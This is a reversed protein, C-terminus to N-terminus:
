SEDDQISAFVFGCIAKPYFYTSKQPLVHGSYCVEKIRAISVGNTILALDAEKRSVKLLCSAFSREYSIQDAYRQAEAPIGLVKEIFFHHLVVIDLQKLDKSLTTDFHDYVEPKLQIHYSEADMMLGFSWPKGAIIEPLHHADQLPRVTFYRSTQAIIVKSSFGPLKGVLRHTPLVKINESETNTLYMLHYNYWEDGSHRPNQRIRKRRYVLSSEYRHHGDALIVKKDKMLSIFESVQQPENIIALVDRVGQYDEAQYVPQQMAADMWPELEHHADTYLGHTPSANLHTADLLAVRESVSGPITNEHPLVVKEEWFSAEIMCIFGKRCFEQEEGSLRFYQYYVYICPLHDQFIVGEERWKQLTDAAHRGPHPDSPVSLHISNLPNQYLSARQEETVVDFPPSILEGISSALKGNYRWGRLARIKAM